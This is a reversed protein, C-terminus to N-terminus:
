VSAIKKLDKKTFFEKGYIKFQNEYIYDINELINTRFIKQIESSYTINPFYDKYKYEKILIKMISLPVDLNDTNITEVVNTEYFKRFRNDVLENTSYNYFLSDWVSFPTNELDQWKDFFVSQNKMFYSDSVKWIDLELNEMEIKIGGYRDILISYRYM